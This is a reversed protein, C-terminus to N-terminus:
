ERQNRELETVMLKLLQQGNKFLNTDDPSIIYLRVLGSFIFFVLSALTESNIHTNLEGSSKGREFIDSILRILESTLNGEQMYETSMEDPIPRKILLLDITNRMHINAQLNELTRCLCFYMVKIPRTTTQKSIMELESLLLLPTREVVQCFLENKGRFHWYIAGRTCGAREAIMDLTTKSVGTDHFCSEAADLIKQRTIEAAYKTRRVM